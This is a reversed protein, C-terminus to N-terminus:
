EAQRLDALQANPRDLIAGTRGKLYRDFFAIGYENILRALPARENCSATSGYQLCTMITFGFHGANQFKVFFKPPNSTDYAGGAQALKPTIGFDRTGGQYMVPVNMSRLTGKSLFPDIYPSMLLVARIRGDKWSPWAGGMAAMTYGGLSHGTGGIAGRNIRRGVQPDNVIENLVVEIDNRRDRYTTDNWKEPHMLPEESRQFLGSTSRPEDIKCKADKHDPAVVVYGARALAETFFVSQTGCGGLGHSFVVLPFESCDAAPADQALATAMRDSYEFRAEGAKTPYWVAARLGNSFTVIRFGLNLASGCSVPGRPTVGADGRLAERREQIRERITQGGRLRGCFRFTVFIAVLLLLCGCGYHQRRL